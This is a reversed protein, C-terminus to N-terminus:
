SPFYRVNNGLVIRQDAIQKAPDDVGGTQVLADHFYFCSVDWAPVDLGAVGGAVDAGINSKLNLPDGCASDYYLSTGWALPAGSQYQYTTSMQWGGLFGDVLANWDEGFREGRGFPLRM